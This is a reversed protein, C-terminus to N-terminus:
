RMPQVVFALASVWRPLHPRRLLSSCFGDPPIAHLLVLVFLIERQWLLTRVRATKRICWTPVLAPLSRLSCGLSGCM